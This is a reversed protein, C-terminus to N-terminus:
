SIDDYSPASIKSSQPREGGVDQIKQWITGKMEEPERAAVELSLQKLAVEDLALCDYLFRSLIEQQADNMDESFDFVVVYYSSDLDTRIVFCKHVPSFAIPGLPVVPVRDIALFKLFMNGQGEDEISIKLYPILYDLDDGSSNRINEFASSQLPSAIASNMKIKVTFKAM